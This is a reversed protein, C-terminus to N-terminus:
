PASATPASRRRSTSLLGDTRGPLPRRGAGRPPGSGAGTATRLSPSGHSLLRAARLPADPARRAAPAPTPTREAIFLQGQSIAWIALSRARQCNAVVLM